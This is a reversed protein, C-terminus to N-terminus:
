GSKEETSEGILPCYPTPLLTLIIRSSSQRPEFGLEVVDRSPSRPCTVEGRLAETEGHTVHPLCYHSSWVAAMLIFEILIRTLSLISGPTCYSNLLHRLRGHLRSSM